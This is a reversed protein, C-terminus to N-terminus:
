PMLNMDCQGHGEGVFTSADIFPPALNDTCVLHEIRCGKIFVNGMADSVSVSSLQSGEIFVGYTAHIDLSLYECTNITVAGTIGKITVDTPSFGEGFRNSTLTVPGTAHFSMSLGKFTSFTSTVSGNVTSIASVGRIEVIDMLIDGGIDSFSVDSVSCGSVLVNGFIGLLSLANNEMLSHKAVFSGRLHLVDVGEPISCRDITTDGVVDAISVKSAKAADLSVDGVGGNVMFNATIRTKTVNIRGSSKSYFVGIQGGSVDATGAGTLEVTGTVKFLGRMVLNGASQRVLVNGKVNSSEITMQRPTVALSSHEAVINGTVQCESIVLSDKAIISGKVSVNSLICGAVTHLEGEFVVNATPESCKFVRKPPAPPVQSSAARPQAVAQLLASAEAPISGAAALEPVVALAALAAAARAFASAARAGCVLRSPAM